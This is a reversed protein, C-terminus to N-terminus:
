IKNANPCDYENMLDNCNKCPDYGEPTGIDINEPEINNGDSCNICEHYKNSGKGTSHWYDANLIILLKLIERKILREGERSILGEMKMIDILEGTDIIDIDDINITDINILGEEEMRNIVDKLHNM